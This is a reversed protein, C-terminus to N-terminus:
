ENNLRRLEKIGEKYNICPKMIKESGNLLVMPYMNIAGSFGEKWAYDTLYQHGGSRIFIKPEHQYFQHSIGVKDHRHAVAVIDATMDQKKLYNMCPHFDNNGSEYGFKHYAVIRYDIKGVKFNITGGYGLYYTPLGLENRKEQFAGIIDFFGRNRLWDDHCGCTVALLNKIKSILHFGIKYRLQMPIILSPMNYGKFRIDGWDGADGNFVYFVDEEEGIADLASEITRIDTRYHDFHWDGGFVIGIWKNTKYQPFAERQRPDFERILDHGKVVFDILKEVPPLEKLDAFGENFSPHKIKNRRLATEIQNYSLNMEDSIENITLGISRLKKLKDVAKKNWKM